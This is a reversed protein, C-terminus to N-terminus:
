EIFIHEIIKSFKLTPISGKVVRRGKDVHGCTVSQIAAFCELVHLDCAVDCYSSDATHMVHCHSLVMRKIM